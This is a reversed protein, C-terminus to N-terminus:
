YAGAEPMGIEEITWAPNSFLERCPLEGFGQYALASSSFGTVPTSRTMFHHCLIVRIDDDDIGLARRNANLM